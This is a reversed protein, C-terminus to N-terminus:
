HSNQGPIPWTDVDYHYVNKLVEILSFIELSVPLKPDEDEWSLILVSVRRYSSTTEEPFITKAEAHLGDGFHRLAARRHTRDLEEASPPLLPTSPRTSVSISHSLFSDSDDSSSSFPDTHVSHLKTQPSAM